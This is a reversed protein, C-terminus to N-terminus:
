KSEHINSSGHGHHVWAAQLGSGGHVTGPMIRVAWPITIGCTMVVRKAGAHRNTDEWRSSWTYSWMEEGMNAMHLIEESDINSSHVTEMRHM